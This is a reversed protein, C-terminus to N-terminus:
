YRRRFRPTRLPSFAGIVNWADAFAGQAALGDIRFAVESELLLQSAITHANVSDVRSVM